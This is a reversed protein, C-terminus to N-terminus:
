IIKTTWRLTSSGSQAQQEEEGEEGGEGAQDPADDVPALGAVLLEGHLLDEAPQPLGLLLDAQGQDDVVHGAVPEPQLLDVQAAPDEGAVAGHWLADEWVGRRYDEYLLYWGGREGRRDEEPYKM